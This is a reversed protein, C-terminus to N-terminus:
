WPRPPTRFATEHGDIKLSGSSATTLGRSSKPLRRSERAMREWCPTFRPTGATFNVAKVAPVGHYEKTIATFEVLPVSM